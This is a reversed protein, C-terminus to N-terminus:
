VSLARLKVRINSNRLKRLAQAEIQRIRERTVGERAGIESLTMPKVSGIGFRMKLIRVERPSLVSVLIEQLQEAEQIDAVIDEPKPSSIDEILDGYVMDSDDNIPKDLSFPLNVKSILDRLKNQPMKIFDSLEEETPERDLYQHLRNREYNIKSLKNSIHVPLRITRGQDSISRGVAQRIWWTAYTSFKYGLEYDFKKAARLLGINGAQVLDVLPLGRNQYKKAIGIVLRVNAEILRCYAQHGERITKQLQPLRGDILDRKVSEKRAEEGQKIHIALQIEEEQTLIKHNAAQHLYIGMLDLNQTENIIREERDQDTEVLLNSHADTLLTQNIDPMDVKSM